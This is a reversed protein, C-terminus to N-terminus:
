HIIFLTAPSPPVPDVEFYDVMVDPRQAEVRLHHLGETLWADGQLTAWTIGDVPDPISISEPVPSMQLPARDDSLRYGNMLLVTPDSADGARVRLSLRYKRGEAVSFHLRIVDGRDPLSVAKFSTLEHSEVAIPMTGDDAAVSYTMEAESRDGEAWVSAGIDPATRLFPLGVDVGAQSCPSNTGIRYYPAPIVGANPLLPDTSLNTGVQLNVVGQDFIDGGPNNDFLNHDVVIDTVYEAFETHGNRGTLCIAALPTTSNVIINNRIDIQSLFINTQSRFTLPGGNWLQDCLDFTNNYVRIDRCGNGYAGYFMIANTCGRMVNHAICLNTGSSWVGVGCGMGEFYNYEISSNYGGWEVGYSKKGGAGARIDNHHIHMDDNFAMSFSGNCRNDYVECGIMYWLEMSFDRQPKISPPCVWADCNHIDVNKVWGGKVPWGGKEREDLLCHHVESDKVQHLELGGYAWNVNTSWWGNNAITCAYIQINTCYVSDPPQVPWQVAVPAGQIYIGQRYCNKVTLDHFTLNHRYDCRIGVLPGENLGDVTLHAITQNGDTMVPSSRLDLICVNVNTAVTDLTIVTQEQGSGILNIGPALKIGWANTHPVTFIGPGVSVTDGAFTTMRLAHSLTAWPHTASGDNSDSGTIEVFNTAPDYSLCLWVNEDRDQCVEGPGNVTINSPTFAGARTACGVLRFRMADGRYATTDVELRADAGVTFVGSAMLTGVGTAGFEFRLTSSSNDEIFLDKASCSGNTGFVLTGTGYRGIYLNANALTFSGDDIRLLGVSNSTFSTMNPTYGLDAPAIGGVYVPKGSEFTGGTQRYTGSGGGWGLTMPYCTVGPRGMGQRVTGGTQYVTGTGGIGAGIAFQGSNTVVGNSINVEGIASPPLAGTASVQGVVLGQCHVSSNWMGRSIDLLGGSINVCARALGGANATDGIGVTVGYGSGEGLVWEGGSLNAEAYGSSVSRARCMTVGSGTRASGGSINLVGYGGRSNDDYGGLYIGSSFNSADLCGQDQVTLTGLSNTACGLKMRGTFRFISHDAITVSGTAASAAVELWNSVVLMANNALTVQGISGKGTGVVFPVIGGAQYCSVVALGGTMNLFGRGATGAGIALRLSTNTGMAGKAGSFEFQGSTIELTGTTNNGIDFYSRAGDSPPALNSFAASGGAIRLIGGDRIVVFPYTANKGKYKLIGENNIWIEAGNGITLIGNTSIFDPANVDLQTTYGASNWINLSSFPTTPPADVTVAYTATNATLNATNLNPVGASWAAEHAWYGDTATNWTTQARSVTPCLVSLATCLLSLASLTQRLMSNFEESPNGACFIPLVM